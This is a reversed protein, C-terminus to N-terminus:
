FWGGFLTTCARWDVHLKRKKQKVTKGWKKPKQMKQNRSFGFEVLIWVSFFHAGVM